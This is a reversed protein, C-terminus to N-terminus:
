TIPVGHEAHLASFDIINVEEWNTFDANADEYVDVIHVGPHDFVVEATDGFQVRNFEARTATPNRCEGNPWCFGLVYRVDDFSSELRDLLEETVQVDEISNALSQYEEAVRCWPQTEGGYAAYFIDDRYRDRDHQWAVEVIKFQLYGTKAFGAKTLCGSLAGGVGVASTLFARRSAM